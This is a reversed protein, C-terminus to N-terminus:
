GMGLNRSKESIAGASGILPQALVPVGERRVAQGSEGISRKMARVKPKVQPNLFYIRGPDPGTPRPLAAFEIRKLIPAM